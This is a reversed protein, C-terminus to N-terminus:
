DTFTFGQGRVAHLPVVMNSKEARRRLRSAITDLHAYNFDYVDEGLAEVLARRGVIQGRESFLRGLFNRESTTLKLSNGRGDSLLWGGQELRWEQRDRHSAPQSRELRQYLATVTAALERVAIPKVLYADAGTQLGIVRDEVTGRATAMIIGVPQSARLHAAISLGDEDTLGIDLIVVDAPRAAYSRYLTSASDFGQVDLGMRTLGEVMEERYDGDDDVLYVIASSAGHM